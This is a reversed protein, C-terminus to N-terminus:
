KSSVDKIDIKTVELIKNLKSVTMNRKHMFMMSLHATSIGTKNSLERFSIGSDKIKKYLLDINIKREM